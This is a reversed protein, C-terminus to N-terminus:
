FTDRYVIIFWFSIIEKLEIILGGVGCYFDEVGSKKFLKWVVGLKIVFPPAFFLNQANWGMTVKPSPASPEVTERYVASYRVTKKEQARRRRNSLIRHVLCGVAAVVAVVVLIIIVIVLSKSSEEEGPDNKQAACQSMFDVSNFNANTEDRCRFHLILM